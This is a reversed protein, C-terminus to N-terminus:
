PAREASWSASSAPERAAMVEDYVSRTQRMWGTASFEREFRERARAGMSARLAPDELLRATATAVVASEPPAPVLLGTVGDRVIEPIGGVRTAVVPVSAAMAELLATPFADAHSPHLLVDVAALLSPVDDQYGAVIAAPGLERAMREVDGRRPGDGAVVMRLHPFRDRLAAIAAFAVEHGKEPRLASVMAVVLDSEALGLHGRLEGRPTRPARGSIGNRVLTVRDARDWGTALYTSRAAGSVAIVRDACHRRVLAALRQRAHDGPPGGWTSEHLTSVLPLGLSRAALGGLVDAYKLHTHVLEAGSERLYRRVRAVGAARIGRVPVLESDIGIGRLREMAARDAGESLHAISLEVGASAALGAFDALM